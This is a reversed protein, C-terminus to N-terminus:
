YYRVRKVMKPSTPNILMWLRELKERIFGLRLKAKHRMMKEQLSLFAEEIADELEWDCSVIKFTQDQLYLTLTVQYTDQAADLVEIDCKLLLIFVNFRYLYMHEEQIM